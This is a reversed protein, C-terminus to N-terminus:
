PAEERYSRSPEYFELDYSGVIPSDIHGFARHAHVICRETIGMSPFLVESPSYPVPDSLLSGLLCRHADQGLCSVHSMTAM